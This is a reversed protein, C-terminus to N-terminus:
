IWEVTVAIKAPQGLPDFSVVDFRADGTAGFGDQQSVFKKESRGSIVELAFTVSGCFLISDNVEGGIPNCNIKFNKAKGL